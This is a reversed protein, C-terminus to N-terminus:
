HEGGMSGMEEKMMKEVEMYSPCKKLEEEMKKKEDESKGEGMKECKEMKAEYKERIAKKKDSDDGAEKAEKAMALITDACECVESKSGCSTMLFGTLAVAMLTKTLIRM